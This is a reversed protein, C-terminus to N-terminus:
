CENCSVEKKLVFLKEVVEDARKRNAKLLVNHKKAWICEFDEPMVYESVLVVNNKSLKRCIEYFADYDFDQKQYKKTGRYPPDLYFVAGKINIDVDRYDMKEFKIGKLYPAQRKLNNLRGQYVCRGGKNDRGYGGDFYRGGYSACYGILAVYEKSYKGTFQNNRVDCYHEFTCQKPAIDISPNNQAYRLLSILNEESDFGERKDCKIKDIINAGGVFLEYYETAHTDNIYKQIIPVIYKAIKSKSGKYVM